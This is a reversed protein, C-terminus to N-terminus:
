IKIFENAKAYKSQSNRNFYQSKDNNNKSPSRSLYQMAVHTKSARGGDTNIREISDALNEQLEEKISPRSKKVKRQCYSNDKAGNYDEMEKLTQQKFQM